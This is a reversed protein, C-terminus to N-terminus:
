EFLIPAGHRNVYARLHSREGYYSDELRSGLFHRSKASSGLRLSIRPIPFCFHIAPTNANARKLREEMLPHCYNFRRCPKMAAKERRFESSSKCLRPSSRYMFLEVHPPEASPRGHAWLYNPLFERIQHRNITSRMLSPVMNDPRWFACLAAEHGSPV